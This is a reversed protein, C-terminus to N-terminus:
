RLQMKCESLHVACGPRFTRGPTRMVHAMPACAARSHPSCLPVACRLLSANARHNVRLAAFDTGRYRRCVGSTCAASIAPMRASECRSAALPATKAHRREATGARDLAQNELIAGTARPQCTNANRLLAVEGCYLVLRPADDDERPIIGQGPISMMRCHTDKM